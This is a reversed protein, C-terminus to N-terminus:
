KFLTKFQAYPEKPKNKIMHNVNTDVCDTESTIHRIFHAQKEFPKRCKNCKLIVNM